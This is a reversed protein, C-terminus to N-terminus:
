YHYYSQTSYLEPLLQALLKLDTSRTSRSRNSIMCFALIETKSYTDIYSFSGLCFCSNNSHPLGVAHLVKFFGKKTNLLRDFGLSYVDSSWNTGNM